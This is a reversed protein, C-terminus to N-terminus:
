RRITNAQYVTDCKSCKMRNASIPHVTFTECVPCKNGKPM